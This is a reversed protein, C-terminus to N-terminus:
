VYIDAVSNLKNTLAACTTETSVKNAHIDIEQDSFKQNRKITTQLAM